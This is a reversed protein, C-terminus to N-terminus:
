EKSLTQAVPMSATLQAILQDEYIINVPHGAEQLALIKDMKSPGANEGVIVFNTVKNISTNIDAGLAQIKVAAEKRSITLLDGTFVVKKNYFLNDKNEVELNPKLLNSAIKKQGFFVSGYGTNKKESSPKRKIHKTLDSNEFYFEFDKGTELAKITIHACAEADSLSNHHNFTFNLFDAVDNLRYNTLESFAEQVLKQSCISKFEPLKWIAHRRSTQNLVDLDFSANHAVIIENHFLHEIEAWVEPFSPADKLQEESIGHILQNERTVSLQKILKHGKDVVQGNRVRVYGFSCASNREKHATEFDIATFSIEQLLNKYHEM